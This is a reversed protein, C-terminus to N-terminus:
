QNVATPQQPPAPPIVTQKNLFYYIWSIMELLAFLGIFVTWTGVKNLATHLVLLWLAIYILRHLYKWWKGLRRVSLNNSTLFMLLFILFALLGFVMFPLLNEFFGMKAQYLGLGRVFHYHFFALLFFTIGLQRRFLTIVRTIKIEIKLRGLIGPLVILGLLIFGAQGARIGLEYFFLSQRSSNLSLNTGFILFGIISLYVFWFLRIILASKRAFFSLVITQFDKEM